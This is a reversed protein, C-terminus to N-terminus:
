RDSLIFALKLVLYDDLVRPDFGTLQHLRGLRYQITNKHMFFEDALATISGNHKGYLMVLKKYFQYDKNDIGDLIKNSYYHRKSKDIYPLLLGLYQDEYFRLSSDQEYKNIWRSTSLAEKYASKSESLKYYLDSIGFYFNLKCRVKLKYVILSLMYQILKKDKDVFLIIINDNVISYRINSESITQSLIDLIVSVSGVKTKEDPIQSVALYKGTDETTNILPNDCTVRNSILREMFMRYSDRKNITNQTIWEEQILIETMKKTVQAYKDLSNPDGMIGIAGIFKNNFSIPINTGVKAGIYQDNSYVPVEIGKSMAITGAEHYQGIREPDSSAIIIGEKNIFNMGRSFIDGISSIIKDALKSSIEM